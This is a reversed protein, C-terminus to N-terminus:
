YGDKRRLPPMKPHANLGSLILYAIIIGLGVGGVNAAADYISMERGIAMRGQVWELGTGLGALFVAILILARESQLFLVPGLMLLCYATVHLFKDSDNQTTLLHPMLSLAAMATVALLWILFVVIKM